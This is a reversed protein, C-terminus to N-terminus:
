ASQRFIVPLNKQGSSRCRFAASGVCHAIRYREGHTVAYVSIFFQALAIGVFGSSLYERGLHLFLIRDYSDASRWDKFLIRRRSVGQDCSILFAHLPCFEAHEHRKPIRPLDVVCLARSIAM